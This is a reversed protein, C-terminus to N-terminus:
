ANMKQQSSLNDNVELINTTNCKRMSELFIQRNVESEKNQTRQTGM